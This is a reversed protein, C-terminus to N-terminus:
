TSSGFEAGDFWAAVGPDRQPKRIESIVNTDLLYSM